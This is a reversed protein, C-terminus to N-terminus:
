RARVDGPVPLLPNNSVQGRHWPALSGRFWEVFAANRAFRPRARVFVIPKCWQWAPEGIRVEALTSTTYADCGIVTESLVHLNDLVM